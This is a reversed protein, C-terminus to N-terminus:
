RSEKLINQYMEVVQLKIKEKDLRESVIRWNILAANDVLIDDKLAIKIANAIAKEDEAPVIFGSEGNNIWENACSTKSQIPFAGMVLAELFSTSIGDSIGLGIAIRAKGYFELMEEHTLRPLIRIKLNTNKSIKKIEKRTEPSCSHIFIEYDKLQNCCINIAKLGILARGSWGQYGKLLIIKRKSPPTARKEEIKKLDFGGGNPLVPLEKGRLGLNRALGIDRECECSYYDCNALVEIIRKKHEKNNKFLYIDSGWNTAIWIPFKNKYEKKTDVVLYAGSQFEMSHIIDPNVEKIVKLLHNTRYYPNIIKLLKRRILSGLYSSFVPFGKIIVDRNKNKQRNRIINHITIKKLFPHIYKYNQSPFLHIEWGEDSIQNIWRATHISEAMAVFLIKMISGVINLLKLSIKGQKKLILIRKHV